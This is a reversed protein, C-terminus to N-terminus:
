HVSESDQMTYARKGAIDLVLWTAGQGHYTVSIMSETEDEWADLYRDAEEESLTEKSIRLFLKGGGPISVKGNFKKLTKWTSGDTSVAEYKCRVKGKVDTWNSNKIDFAKLQIVGNKPDSTLKLIEWTDNNEVVRLSLKASHNVAYMEVSDAPGYVKKGNIKKFARIQYRYGSGATVKKDTYGTEKVTQFTKVTKWSGGKVPRRRLQIGDAKLGDNYYCFSLQISKPTTKGEYYQYDDFLVQSIDTRAYLDAYYIIQKGGSSKQISEIRWGYNKQKKVSLNLSNKTGSLTKIKKEFRIGNNGLQGGYIVTKQIKKKKPWTLTVSTFGSVRAKADMSVYEKKVGAQITEPLACGVGIFLFCIFLFVYIRNKM